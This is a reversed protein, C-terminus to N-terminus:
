AIFCSNISNTPDRDPRAIQSDHIYITRHAVSLDSGINDPIDRYQWVSITLEGCNESLMAAHTTIEIFHYFNHLVIHLLRKM